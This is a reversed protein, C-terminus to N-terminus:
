AAEDTGDLLNLVTFILQDVAIPKRLIAQVGMKATTTLIEMPRDGPGGSMAIIRAAPREALLLDITELGSQEPETVDCMVVDHRRVRFAQLGAEGTEADEIWHGDAELALRLMGRCKADSDIILFRAM